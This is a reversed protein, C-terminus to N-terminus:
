IGRCKSPDCTALESGSGSSLLKETRVHTAAPRKSKRREVAGLVANRQAGIDDLRAIRELARENRDLSNVKALEKIEQPLESIVRARRLAERTVNLLRAGSSLRRDHPQTTPYAVQVTENLLRERAALLDAREIVTLDVRDLNESAAMLRLIESSRDRFVAAPITARGLERFAELRLRGAILLYRGDNRKQVAVPSILGTVDISAALAAIAEQHHARMGDPLDIKDLSINLTATVDMSEISPARNRSNLIPPNKNVLVSM